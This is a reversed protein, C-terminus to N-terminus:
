QSISLILGPLPICSHFYLAVDASSSLSNDTGPCLRKVRPLTSGTVVPFTASYLGFGTRISHFRSFRKDRCIISGLITQIGAQLRTGKYDKLIPVRLVFLIIYFNYIYSKYALSGM